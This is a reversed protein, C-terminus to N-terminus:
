EVGITTARDHATAVRQHAVLERLAADPSSLRADSLYAQVGARADADALGQATFFAVAETELADRLAADGNAARIADCERNLESIIEFATALQARIALTHNSTAAM